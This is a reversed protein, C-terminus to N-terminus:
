KFLALLYEYGEKEMEEYAVFHLASGNMCYRKGGDDAPGDDFVHGLHSDGVRSRVEVRKMFLTDDDILKVADPDIPRTFSPWGTGSDFKDESSFMPEGTVIDVYIGKKDLQDYEHSFSSETADNQTVDYEITGLREKIEEESPKTYLTQDVKINYPNKEKKELPKEALSLDISCYTSPNKKVYDQHYEEALDFRELPEVEVVMKKEYNEQEKKIINEITEVQGENVYYIGTRYQTGVNNGQQNLSVPNIVKFYYLLIEELDIIDPDFKVHVTEAHGTSQSVVEEYSPQNTTGNAYGSTADIVGNVREMYAEIGLLM